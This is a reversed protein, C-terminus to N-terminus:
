SMGTWTSFVATKSISVDHLQTKNSSSTHIQTRPKFIQPYISTLLNPHCEHAVVNDSFYTQLHSLDQPLSFWQSLADFFASQFYVLLFSYHKFDQYIYSCFVTSILHFFTLHLLSIQRSPFCSPSYHCSGFPSSKTISYLYLCFIYIVTNM